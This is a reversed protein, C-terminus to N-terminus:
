KKELTKQYAKIDRKIHDDVGIRQSDLLQLVGQLVDGNEHGIGYVDNILPHIYARVLEGLLYGEEGECRKGYEALMSSFGKALAESNTVSVRSM